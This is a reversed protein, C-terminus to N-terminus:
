KNPDYGEAKIRFELLERIIAMPDTSILEPIKLIFKIDDQVSNKRGFYFTIFLSDRSTNKCFKFFKKMGLLADSLLPISYARKPILYTYFGPIVFAFQGPIFAIVYSCMVYRIQLQISFSGDVFFDKLHSNIYDHLRKWMNKDNIPSVTNGLDFTEQFMKSFDELIKNTQAIDEAQSLPPIEFNNLKADLFDDQIEKDDISSDNQDVQPLEITAEESQSISSDELFPDHPNMNIEPKNLFNYWTRVVVFFVLIM